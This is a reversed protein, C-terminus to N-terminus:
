NPADVTQHRSLPHQKAISPGSDLHPFIRSSAELGTLIADLIHRGAFFYDLAGNRAADGPANTTRTRMRM